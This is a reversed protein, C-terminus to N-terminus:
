DKLPKFENPYEQEARKLLREHAKQVKEMGQETELLSLDSVVIASTYRQLSDGVQFQLGVGATEDDWLTIETTTKKQTM